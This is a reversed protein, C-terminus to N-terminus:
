HTLLNPPPSGPPSAGRKIAGAKAEAVETAQQRPRAAQRQTAHDTQSHTSPRSPPLLLLVAKAAPHQQQAQIQPKPDKQETEAPAAAGQLPLALCPPTGAKWVAAVPTFKHTHPSAPTHPPAPHLPPARHPPTGAEWAAAVPTHTHPPPSCFPHPHQGGSLRSCCSPPAPRSVPLLLCSPHDPPSPSFSM